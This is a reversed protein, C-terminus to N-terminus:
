RLRDIFLIGNLHDIEHQFIVATFGKVQETKRQFDRVENKSGTSFASDPLYSITIENSRWVSDVVEPISLCGEPGLSKEESYAEIKPNIYFEFPDGPKDYRQVAVLARCIGVQPAAIGVGPDAPDNVTALMREKLKQYTSSSLTKKELPQAIRRLLLSDERNDIKWVRMIGEGERILQLESSTFSDTCASLVLLCFMFPLYIFRSFLFYDRNELGTWFKGNM